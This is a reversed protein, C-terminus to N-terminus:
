VAPLQYPLVIFGVATDSGASLTYSISEATGDGIYPILLSFGEDANTDVGEALAVKTAAACMFVGFTFEADGGTLDMYVANSGVNFGVEAAVMGATAVSVADMFGDADGGSESALIGVDIDETADVTVTHVGLGVPMVAANQPLDFGTDTETAATTDAIDFPIVAVQNKQNTDVFLENPGSPEIGKAVVFQGGPAMIYLDVSNVSNATYFEILGNTLAVPNNSTAQAGTLTASIAVKSSAGAAAVYCVGGATEIVAQTVHDELQIRYGKSM